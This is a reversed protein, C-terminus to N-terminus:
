VVGLHNAAQDNIGIHVTPDPQSRKPFDIPAASEAEGYFHMVWLQYVRRQRFSHRTGIMRRPDIQATATPM